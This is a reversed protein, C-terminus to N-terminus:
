PADDERRAGARRGRPAHGSLSDRRSDVGPRDAADGAPRHRPRRRRDAAHRIGARPRLRCRAAAGGRRRRRAPPGPGRLPRAPRRSREARQVRQRTRNRQRVARLARDPASRRSAAQGAAFAGQPYDLVFTPQVLTPELSHKFVEDLLRGGSLTAVVDRRSARGCAPLGAAGARERHARRHRVGRPHRRCVDGAPVPPTFDLSRRRRAPADTGGLCEAVMGSVLEEVMELMDLYDAYAQYWELMTFEPNHTRDM